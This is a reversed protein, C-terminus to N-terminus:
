PGSGSGVYQPSLGQGGGLDRTRGLDPISPERDCRTPVAGGQDEWPPFLGCIIM